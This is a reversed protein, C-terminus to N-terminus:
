PRESVEARGEPETGVPASSAARLSATFAVWHFLAGFWSGVALGIATGVAGFQSAGVFGGVMQAAADGLRARLSRRADALVRLGIGAGLGLCIGAYAVALPLIVSRASAWTAGLLAAGVVDPLSSVFIAWAVATGAVLLSVVVAPQRLRAPGGTRLIRVGEPVATIGVGMLLVQMPGLLLQGGRLAGAAGLGAFAALAVSPALGAAMSILAEAVYRPGIDRHQKWWNVAARPSPATRAVAQGLGAALLAAGGWALIPPALSTGGMLNLYVLAPFMALSWTLESAFALKARGQAIFAFRWMDQLLLGPLVIALALFAQGARGGAALGIIGVIAGAVMGVVLASGASGAAATRWDSDGVHSHRVMFPESALARSSILAVTYTLFALSFAGFDEPSVARAVLVGVGFNNLSSLAQDAFGWSIRRTARLHKM